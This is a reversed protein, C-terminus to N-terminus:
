ELQIGIEAIHDLLDAPNEYLRYAGAQFLEAEGYGGRLLGIGLAKARGAGLLDWISDGVVICDKLDKGLRAAAQVFVDPNPKAREVHDGTVVPANSPIGLPRIMREVTKQDGSTAIAWRVHVRTLYRLLERAGPLVRIYPIKKQFRRKHIKELREIQRDGIRRELERFITRLMLRGSMGVCRHIRANAIEIGEDELAERWAMVHEYASDLLTGDLDFLIAPEHNERAISHQKTSKEQISRKPM